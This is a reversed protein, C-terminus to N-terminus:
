NNFFIFSMVFRAPSLWINIITQLKTLLLVADKKLIVNSIYSIDVMRHISTLAKEFLITLVDIDMLSVTQGMVFVSFQNLKEATKGSITQLYLVGFCLVM